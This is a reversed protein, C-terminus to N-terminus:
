TSQQSACTAREGLSAPCMISCISFLINKSSFSFKPIHLLQTAFRKAKVANIAYVSDIKSSKLTCDLSLRGNMAPQVELAADVVLRCTHRAIVDLPMSVMVSAVGAAAGIALDWVQTM